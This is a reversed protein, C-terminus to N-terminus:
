DEVDAVYCYFAAADEGGEVRDIVFETEDEGSAYRITDDKRPRICLGYSYVVFCLEKGDDHPRGKCPYEDLNPNTGESVDAGRDGNTPRTLIIDVAGQSLVPGIVNKLSIGAITM